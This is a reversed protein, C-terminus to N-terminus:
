EKWGKGRDSCCTQSCVSNRCAGKNCRLCQLLHLVIQLHPTWNSRPVRWDWWLHSYVQNAYEHRAQCCHEGLLIWVCGPWHDFQRDSDWADPEQFSWCGRCLTKHESEQLRQHVHASNRRMRLKHPGAQDPRSRAQLHGLSTRRRSWRSLVCNSCPLDWEGEQFGWM